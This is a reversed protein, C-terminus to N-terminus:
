RNKTLFINQQVLIKNYPIKHKICWNTSKQINNKKFQELKENKHHQILNLTNIITELQQQGFIANIEELKSLILYSPEFDFIQEIYKKNEIVDLINMFKKLFHSTNCYKFDKCIIYKESNAYRSTNPKIINVENYFMTLLNICDISSKYFLDFVKLIFNGGKKQLILAYLIQSLILKVSVIEQENFNISFDFGGDGTIVDMSNRYKEYCLELNKSKFLNGDKTYGEELFVNHHKELFQQSKKWGPVSTNDNDLLTMGYYKDKDNNRLNLIAEIFGGPGEALHFSNIPCETYDKLINLSNSIEIFKFYSRSLPKPKAISTKYNPITTHIYEYPNTFKKFIDWKIFYNDILCKSRNIYESLTKSIYIRSNNNNSVTLKITDLNIKNYNSPLKYYTM